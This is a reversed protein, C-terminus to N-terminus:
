YLVDLLVFLVAVARSQGLFRAEAYIGLLSSRIEVQAKENYLLTM